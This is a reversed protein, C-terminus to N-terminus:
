KADLGLLQQRVLLLLGALEFLDPMPGGFPLKIGANLHRDLQNLLGGIRALSAFAERNIPPVLRISGPKSGAALLFSSVTCGARRARRRILNAQSASAYVKLVTKRRRAPDKPARGRRANPHYSM